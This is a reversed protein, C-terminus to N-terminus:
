QCAVGYAGLVTVLEDLEIEGCGYHSLIWVLDDIDVAADGTCDGACCTGILEGTDDDGAITVRSSTCDPGFVAFATCAVPQTTDFHITCATIPARPANFGLWNGSFLRVAVVDADLIVQTGWWDYEESEVRNFTAGDPIRICVQAEVFAQWGPQDPVIRAAVTATTATQTLTLVIDLLAPTLM